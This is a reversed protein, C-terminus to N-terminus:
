EESYQLRGTRRDFRYYRRSTGTSVAGESPTRNRREPLLINYPRLIDDIDPIHTPASPVQYSRIRALIDDLNEEDDSSSDEEDNYSSAYSTPIHTYRYGYDHAYDYEDDRSAGDSAMFKIAAGTISVLILLIIDDIGFM